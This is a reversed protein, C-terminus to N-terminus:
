DGNMRAKFEPACKRSVRIKTNGVLTALLTRDNDPAYMKVKALNLITSKSVRMFGVDKYQEELQTLPSRVVYRGSNLVAVTKRGETEFYLVSDISIRNMTEGNYAFLTKSRKTSDATSKEAVPVPVASNQIEIVEIGIALQKAYHKLHATYVMPKSYGVAIHGIDKGGFVIPLVHVIMPHESQTFDIPFIDTSKFDTQDEKNIFDTMFICRSTNKDTHTCVAISSKDSILYHTQSIVDALGQMDRCAFLKEDLESNAYQADEISRKEHM